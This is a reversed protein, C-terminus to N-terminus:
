GSRFMSIQTVDGQNSFLGRNLNTMVMVRETKILDGQKEFSASLASMYSIESSSLVPWIPDTIKSNCGRTQQFYGRNSKTMLMVKSLKLEIKKFGAPLSSLSLIESSNSFKGSRIMFRLTVHGQNNFFFCFFFVFFFFVRRKSKTMLM